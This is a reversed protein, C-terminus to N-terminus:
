MAFFPCLQRTRVCFLKPCGRVTTGVEAFKKLQLTSNSHKKFSYITNTMDGLAMRLRPSPAAPSFCPTNPLTKRIRELEMRGAEVLGQM